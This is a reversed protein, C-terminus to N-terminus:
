TRLAVFLVLGIVVLLGVAIYILLDRTRTVAAVGRKLMVKIYHDEARLSGRAEKWRESLIPDNRDRRFANCILNSVVLEYPIMNYNENFELLVSDMDPLSPHSESYFLMKREVESFEVQELKAEEVIRSALFEKAEASNMPPKAALGQEKGWFDGDRRARM